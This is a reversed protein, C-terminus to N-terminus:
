DWIIKNHSVCWAKIDSFLTSSYFSTQSYNDKLNNNITEKSLNQPYDKKIISIIVRVVDHGRCIEFDKNEYITNRFDNFDNVSFNSCDSIFLQALDNNLQEHSYSDIRDLFDFKLKRKFNFGLHFVDNFIRFYGIEKAYSLSTIYSATYNHYQSCFFAKVEECEFMMMEIDRYDTRFINDPLTYNSDFRTYDADRIGFILGGFIRSNLESVINEVNLCGKKTLTESKQSNFIRCNKTLFKSYIAKDYDDEVIIWVTKRGLPSNSALPITILAYEEETLFNNLSRSMTTM